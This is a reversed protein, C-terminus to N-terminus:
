CEHPLMTAPFAGWCARSFLEPHARVQIAGEVKLFATDGHRLIVGTGSWPLAGGYQRTYSVNPLALNTESEAQFGADLLWQMNRRTAPPAGPAVAPPAVADACGALLLVLLLLPKHYGCTPWGARM